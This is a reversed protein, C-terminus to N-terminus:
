LVIFVDFTILCTRSISLFFNIVYWNICVALKSKREKKEYQDSLVALNHFM